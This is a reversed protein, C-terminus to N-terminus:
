KEGSPLFGGMPRWAAATRSGERRYPCKGVASHSRPLDPQSMSGARKLVASLEPSALKARGELSGAAPRAEWAAPPTPTEGSGRGLKRIKSFAFRDRRAAPAAPPAEPQPPSSDLQVVTNRSRALASSVSGMEAPRVPGLHAAAAGRPVWM